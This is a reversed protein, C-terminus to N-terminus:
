PIALRQPQVETKCDICQVYGAVPIQFPSLGVCSNGKAKCRQGQDCEESQAPATGLDCVKEPIACTGGACAEALEAQVPAVQIESATGAALGLGSAFAIVSLRWTGRTWPVLGNQKM